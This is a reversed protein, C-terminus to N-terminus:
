DAHIAADAQRWGGERLATERRTSRAPSQLADAPFYRGPCVTPTAALHAHTEVRSPKINYREELYAVLARLAQIQRPTPPAKDLDGILCIGVGYEEMDHSRANRCHIGVKQQSWRSAVEIRGDESGTGNGIVFHYGCGDFGLRQRHDRDIQAYDGEATASHHVVVYKWPRDAKDPYVLQDAGAETLFPRLGPNLSAQRM